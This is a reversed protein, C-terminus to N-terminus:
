LYYFSEFDMSWQARHLSLPFLNPNCIPSVHLLVYVAGDRGAFGPVHKVQPPLEHPQM